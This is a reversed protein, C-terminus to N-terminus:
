EQAQNFKSDATSLDVRGEETLSNVQCLSVRSQDIIRQDNKWFGAGHRMRKCEQSQSAEQQEEGVRAPLV